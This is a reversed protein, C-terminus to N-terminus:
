LKSLIQAAHNTIGCCSEANSYEVSLANKSPPIDLTPNINFFGNPKLAFGVMDVPMVPFDEVRPDHTLGFSYWVVPDAGKLAKNEKTWEALGMCSTSQVVHNGAPFMQEDDYPTVWLNHTAFKARRYVLSNPQMHMAPTPGPLLKFAVPEGSVPNLVRPNKITWCRATAFNVDRQAEGTTLLDTEHMVFANAYPNSPGEPLPM